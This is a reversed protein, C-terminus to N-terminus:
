RLGEILDALANWEPGLVDASMDWAALLKEVAEQRKDALRLASMLAELASRAPGSEDSNLPVWCRLAEQIAFFDQAEGAIM